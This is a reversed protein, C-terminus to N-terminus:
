GMYIRLIHVEEVFYMVRFRLVWIPIAQVWLPVPVRFNSPGCFLDDFFFLGNFLFMMQAM